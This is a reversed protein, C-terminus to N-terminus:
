LIRASAGYGQSYKMECYEIWDGDELENPNGGYQKVYRKVEEEDIIVGIEVSMERQM